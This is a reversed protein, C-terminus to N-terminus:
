FILHYLDAIIVVGFLLILGITHIWNEVKQNIPKGRIWEITTFVMKSGDLAPFPLLNFVALNAAILPLLVLFNSIGQMSLTAMTTVTTIPGGLGALGLGGTLLQGFLALIQWALVCTFPVCLLLSEGFSYPTAKINIGLLKKGDTDELMTLNIVQKQGDRIVTTEFTEGSDFKAILSNFTNGNIFSVKVGDIHTIIDGQKLETQINGNVDVIKTVKPVDYGVTCLLILSFIIASIFNFFAGFFLVILRKWPKQKMFSQESESKEDEGDFACYGGLPIIRLSFIEGNKKKKSFIAPGFGVSFENIKFGLMKGAVYHGFEHITVMVLLVLVALLIYLVIM